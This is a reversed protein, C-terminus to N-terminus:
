STGLVQPRRTRWEDALVAWRDHDRWAGDIYLYDPSFGELRFGLREVLARSAANGPQINAEARHLGFVDFLEDLAMGLGRTMRGHGVGDVFGYYGLYCSLFGGGVIESANVVGVLVAGDRVLFSRRRPGVGTLWEDYARSTAPPAVWPHHLDRSRAVADLFLARDDPRPPALTLPVAIM